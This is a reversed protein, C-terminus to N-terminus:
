HVTFSSKGLLPGYRALARAGRGPWVYWRYTGRKLRYSHGAYVWSRPLPFSTGVPWTSLVKRGGRFLQLNYYATHKQAVWRLVAGARVRAGAAPAYLAQLKANV